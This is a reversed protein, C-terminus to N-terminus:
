PQTSPLHGQTQVMESMAQDIPIAVVNHAQDVWHYRSINETQAAKLDVLSNDQDYAAYKDAFVDNVESQYWGQVGIIGVILLLGAVVGITLVLPVNVEQRIAAM